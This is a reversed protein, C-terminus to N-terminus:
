VRSAREADSIKSIDKEFSRQATVTMQRFCNSCSSIKSQISKRQRLARSREIGEPLWLRRTGGFIFCLGKKQMKKMLNLFFDKESKSETPVIIYDM